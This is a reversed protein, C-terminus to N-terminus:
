ADTSTPATLITPLAAVMSELSEFSWMYQDQRQDQFDMASAPSKRVIWGNNTRTIIIEKM